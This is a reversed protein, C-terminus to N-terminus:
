IPVKPRTHTRLQAFSIKEKEEPPEINDIQSVIGMLLLWAAPLSTWCPTQPCGSRCMGNSTNMLQPRTLFPPTDQAFPASSLKGPDDRCKNICCLVGSSQVSCERSVGM